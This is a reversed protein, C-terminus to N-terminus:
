IEIAEATGRIKQQYDCPKNEQQEVEQYKCYEIKELMRDKSRTPYFNILNFNTIHFIPTELIEGKQRLWPGFTKEQSNINYDIEVSHDGTHVIMSRNSHYHIGKGGPFFRPGILPKKGSHAFATVCGIFPMNGLHDKIWLEFEGTTFLIREDADLIFVWYPEYGYTEEILELHHNRKAAENEFLTESERFIIDCRNHYKNSLREVIEKTKDTSKASKGGNKWAGDLIEIIDVDRIKALLSDITKEIFDQENYVCIAVVLRSQM